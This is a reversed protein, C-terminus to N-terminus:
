DADYVEVLAIGSGGDVGTVVVTYAGPTLTMLLAADRSASPLAFAGVRAATASVAAANRCIEWDDNTAVVTDGRVVTLLPDALAGDVNLATLAPGIARLLFRRPQTGNVTFGAILANAGTGVNGRISLNVLRPNSPLGPTADADYAEVLAIGATSNAGTITATYSRPTLSAVLAADLSATQFPFAGLRAFLDPALGGQSWNDNALAFDSGPAVLAIRPDALTGTVGFASLAPGAARVLVSKPGDVVFGVILADTGSGVRARSSLNVLRADTGATSFVQAARVPLGTSLKVATTAAFAQGPGAPIRVGRWRSGDLTPPSPLLPDDTAGPLLGSGSFQGTTFNPFTATALGDSIGARVVGTREVWAVMRAGDVVNGVDVIDGSEAVRPNTGQLYELYNPVGDGDTDDTFNASVGRVLSWASYDAAATPMFRTVVPDADGSRTDCWIAVCPQDSSLGPAVALYDGLMYGSSTRKAYRIDSSLESLRLNPQWTVGGDLSVATYCDVFNHGDAANRKDLFVVSVTRGDPSV